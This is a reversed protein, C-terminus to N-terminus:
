INVKEAKGDAIKYIIDCKQVTTLRHAIIILTKHGQLAEIAEMVATETENDLASTAEDLVLIDPKFYLARAIALRQRQGGSFRIGREGVLTNLGAPLKKVYESMQAQELAAWVSEDDIEKDDIGFAINNRITDDNLYFAQSVFGIMKGWGINDCCMEVGDVIIEGENPILLRLLIDALTTKGAGSQGILGVSQGKKIELNLKDLVANEAGPYRWTINKVQIEREFKNLDKSYVEKKSTGDVKDAEAFNNYVEEIGPAYFTILNISSSIRGLSPLIRFAAVAFTALQPLMLENNQGYVFRITVIALLATISIMEIIYAPSDGAVNQIVVANQQREYAKKYTEAFYKQKRMVLVERIGEFAQLSAKSTKALYHHYKEGAKQVSKRFVFLILLLGIIAAGGFVLAMIFDTLVIYIIIAFVTLIESLSRLIQLIVQYASSVSAGVGRMLESVNKGLFFAYGREMYFNMMKVSLEKQIKCSYKSRIFSLFVLYLNKLWYILISFFCVGIILKKDTDIHIQEALLVIYENNWLAEPTMMVQVLPLIISVGLMEFAAGIVSLLFVIVGLWKQSPQLIYNLKRICKIIKNNM